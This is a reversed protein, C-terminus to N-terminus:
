ASVGSSAGAPTPQRRELLQQAGQYQAQTLQRAQEVSWHTLLWNRYHLATMGAGQRLADLAAVQDATVPAEPRTVTGLRAFDAAARMAATVGADVDVAAQLAACLALTVAPVQEAPVDRLSRVQWGAFLWDQAFETSWGLSARLARCAAAQDPTMNAARDAV